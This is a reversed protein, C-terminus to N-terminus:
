ANSLFFAAGDTFKLPPSSNLIADGGRPRVFSGVIGVSAVDRQVAVNYKVTTRVIFVNLRAVSLVVNASFHSSKIIHGSPNSRPLSRPREKQGGWDWKRKSAFNHHFSSRIMVNHIVAGYGVALQRMGLPLKAHTVCVHSGAAVRRDIEASKADFAYRHEVEWECGM